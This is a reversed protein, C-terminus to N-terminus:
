TPKSRHTSTFNSTTTEESIPQYSISLKVHHIRTEDLKIRHLRPFVVCFFGCCGVKGGSTTGHGSPQFGEFSVLPYADYLPSFMQKM